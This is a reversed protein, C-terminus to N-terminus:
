DAVAIVVAVVDAEDPRKPGIVGEGCGCSLYGLHRENCSQLEGELTM